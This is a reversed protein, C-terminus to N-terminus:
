LCYGALACSMIAMVIIAPVIMLLGARLGASIQEDSTSGKTKHGALVWGSVSFILLTGTLYSILQLALNLSDYHIPVGLLIIWSALCVVPWVPVLGFYVRPSESLAAIRVYAYLCVLVPLLAATLILWYPATQEIVHKSDDDQSRSSRTM